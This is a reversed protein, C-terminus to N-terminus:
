GREWRAFIGAPLLRKESSEEIVLEGHSIKGGFKEILPLLANKYATPSYGATYGNILFFIPADSLISFCAALLEPLNKEIKWLENDPGHGFAPPDMIIADYRNGRKAEKKVFSLADETIWRISKDSLGSLKANERAWSVASKSGDLHVVEAGARAAALTAGGTYAFLNLVRVPKSKVISMQSKVASEIFLWNSKQEPFLGVHKFSTPKILFDFGSFRMNWEKPLEKSLHWASKNGTRTFFADAKKWEAEPLFKRWIAEPDPRALIYEGFRELKSGAGSDLLEYDKEGKTILTNSDM